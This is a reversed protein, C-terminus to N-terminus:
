IARVPNSAGILAAIESDTLNGSSSQFLADAVANVAELNQAVLTAAAAAGGGMIASWDEPPTGAASLVQRIRAEDNSKAASNSSGLLLEEAKSGAYGVMVEHATSSSTALSPPGTDTKGKWVGADFYVEASTPTSAESLYSVVVHGAEHVSARYKDSM